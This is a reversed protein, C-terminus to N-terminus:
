FGLLAAQEVSLQYKKSDVLNNLLTDMYCLEVCFDAYKYLKDNYTNMQTCAVENVKYQEVVAAPVGEQPCENQRRQEWSYCFLTVNGLREKLRDYSYNSLDQAPAVGISGRLEALEMMLENKQKEYSEKYSQLAEKIEKGSKEVLLQGNYRLESAIGGKIMEDVAGDPIYAVKAFIRSISQSKRISDAVKTASFLNGIRKTHIAFRTPNNM